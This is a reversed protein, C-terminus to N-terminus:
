VVVGGAQGAYQKYFRGLEQGPTKGDKDIRVIQVFAKGNM